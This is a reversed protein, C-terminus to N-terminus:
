RGTGVMQVGRKSVVKDDSVEQPSQDDRTMFPRAKSCTKRDKFFPDTDCAQPKLCGQSSMPKGDSCYPQSDAANPLAATSGALLLAAPLLALFNRSLM